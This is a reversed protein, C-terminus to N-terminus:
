LILERCSFKLWVNNVGTGSLGAGATLQVRVYAPDIAKYIFQAYPVSVVHQTNTVSATVLSSFNSVKPDFLHFGTATDMLTFTMGTLAGTAMSSYSLEFM